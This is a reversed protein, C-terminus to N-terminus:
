PQLTGGLRLLPVETATSTIELTFGTVDDAADPAYSFLGREFPEPAPAAFVVDDAIRDSAPRRHAVLRFHPAAPLANDSCLLLVGEGSPPSWIVVFAAAGDADAPTLVAVRAQGLDVATRALREAVTREVALEQALAAAETTAIHARQGAGTARAHLNLAFAGAFCGATALFALALVLALTNAGRNQVGARLAAPPFSSSSQRPLRSM